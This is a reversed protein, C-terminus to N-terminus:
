FLKGTNYKRGLEFIETTTKRERISNKVLDIRKGIGNKFEEFSVIPINNIQGHLEGYVDIIVTYVTNIGYIKNLNSVEERLSSSKMVEVAIVPYDFCGNVNNIWVGVDARVQQGFGKKYKGFGVSGNGFIGDSDSKTKRENWQWKYYDAPANEYFVVEPYAEVGLTKLYDVIDSKVKIHGESEPLRTQKSDRLNNQKHLHKNVSYDSFRRLTKEMYDNKDNIKVDVLDNWTQNYLQYELDKPKSLIYDKLTMKNLEANICILKMYSKNVPYHVGNRFYLIIEYREQCQGSWAFLDEREELEDRDEVRDSM